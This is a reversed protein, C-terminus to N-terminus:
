AQKQILAHYFGDREAAPLWQQSEGDPMPLVRAGPTRAAFSEFLADNEQPFV